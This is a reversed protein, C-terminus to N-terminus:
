IEDWSTTGTATLPRGIPGASRRVSVVVRVSADPALSADRAGAGAVYWLAAAMVILVAAGGLLQRKTM